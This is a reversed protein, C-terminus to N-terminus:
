PELNIFFSCALFSGPHAATAILVYARGERIFQLIQELRDSTATKRIAVLEGVQIWRQPTLGGSKLGGKSPQQPGKNHSRLRAWIQLM